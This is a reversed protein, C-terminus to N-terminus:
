YGRDLRGETETVYLWMCANQHLTKEVSTDTEPTSAEGFRPTEFTSTDLIVLVGTFAPRGELRVM